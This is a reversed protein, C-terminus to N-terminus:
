DRSISKTLMVYVVPYMYRKLYPDKGGESNETHELVMKAQHSSLTETLTLM